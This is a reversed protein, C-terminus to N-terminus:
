PVRGVPSSAERPVKGLAELARELASAALASCHRKHRPLGGLAERIAPEDWGRAQAPSLGALREALLSAAAIAPCCGYTQFSAEAIREGEIRLYLVVFPGRGPVGAQGVADPREM